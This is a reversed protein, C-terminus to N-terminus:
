RRYRGFQGGQRLGKMPIGGVSDEHCGGPHQPGSENRLVLADHVGTQSGRQASPDRHRVPRTSPRSGHDHQQFIGRGAIGIGKGAMVWCTSSVVANEKTAISCSMRECQSSSSTNRRDSAQVSLLFGYM